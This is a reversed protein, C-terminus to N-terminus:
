KYIILQNPTLYLEGNNTKLDQVPIGLQNSVYSISDGDKTVYIKLNNRPIIIEQNPYIYDDANLGNIELLSKYDVNNDRAIAYMNDGKKVIYTQFNDNATVTDSPVILFSGVRLNMDNQIGNLKKINEVTTNFKSAVTKLNDDMGVQYIKYM